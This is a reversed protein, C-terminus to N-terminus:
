EWAASLLAIGQSGHEAATELDAAQLGGLAYVPTQAITCLASFGPWGLPEASPHSSTPNVPSVLLYDAGLAAARRIEEASHCSAGTWGTATARARDLRAAPWHIGDVRAYDDFDCDAHVCILSATQRCIAAARAVLAALEARPLQKERVILLVRQAAAHEALRALTPEVGYRRVDTILCLRPLRVANVIAANAALLEVRELNEPAVWQLRQGERGQAEGDYALVERVHLRVKLGDYQHSLTILPRQARLRIGLEEDLERALAQNTTEGADIKGGPFEWQGAFAQGAQRQNVLVRGAADYVVGVAVDIAEPGAQM